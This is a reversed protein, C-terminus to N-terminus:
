ESDELIAQDIAAIFGAEEAEFFEELQGTESDDSSADPDDLGGSQHQHFPPADQLELALVHDCIQHHQWLPLPACVNPISMGSVTPVHVMYKTWVMMWDYLQHM